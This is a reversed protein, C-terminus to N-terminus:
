KIMKPFDHVDRFLNQSTSIHIRTNAKYIKTNKMLDVKINPSVIRRRFRINNHSHDTGRKPHLFIYLIVHSCIGNGIFYLSMDFYTFILIQVRNYYWLLGFKLFWMKLIHRHQISPAINHATAIICQKVVTHSFHCHGSDKFYM